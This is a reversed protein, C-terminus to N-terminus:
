GYTREPAPKILFWAVAGAAIAGGLAALVQALWAASGIPSQPEAKVIMAHVVPVPAASAVATTKVPDAPPAAQVPNAPPATRNLGNPLAAEVSHSGTVIQNPDTDVTPETTVSPPPQDPTLTPMAGPPAANAGPWLNEAVAGSAAPAPAPTPRADVIARHPKAAVARKAIRERFAKKKKIVTAALKSHPPLKRESKHRIFQLLPLPKGVSGTTASQAAASGLTVALFFLISAGATAIRIRPMGNEMVGGAACEACAISKLTVCIRIKERLAAVFFPV